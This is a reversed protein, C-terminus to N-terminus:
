ILIDIHLVNHLLLVNYLYRINIWHLVYNIEPLAIAGIDERFAVVTYNPGAM